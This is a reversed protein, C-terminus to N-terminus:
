QGERNAPDNLDRGEGPQVDGSSGLSRWLRDLLNGSPRSPPKRGPRGLAMAPQGRHAAKMFDRWLRAPAGGGTVRAMPSGDDNGLWVGAVLQSTYGLFWADRYDQSTGTKGAAPRGIRANRGTGERITRALMQNLEAIHWPRAVEGGGSGSRRYLSNGKGDRVELIGHPLVAHGQNAFAAYAATLRLLSTEGAGLAMSPHRPNASGLGLRRATAAVDERGVKEQVQVAVSNSSYALADTYSIRGRYKGAYNKPSWGDVTIPKDMFKTDPRIGAELGALFVVPKFASGPQRRAQTARNYQSKGYDKGGVMARVAGNSAMALLAGQGIKRKRAADGAIRLMATEARAQIDRDLTTKIVLNRETPGLYDPLRDMVWDAFYRASQASAGARGRRLGAPKTKAGKAAAEDIYGAAVMNNLVVAARKRAAKLNRTPALRSPAKLLGALMAAEALNVKAAPKSFYRRAAADVGYAGAGLYVRNLYLTLIQDKSFNAELWLALLFEQVKRKLTRQHTLFVNKALQQSITSGGQVIRGAFLNTVMARTLGIPDVGFHSYFRRDETAVVAQPLHRPLQGAQVPEGYVDGFRAIHRGKYDLLTLSPKRQIASLKDVSPLDYAYWVIVGMVAILGWVAM